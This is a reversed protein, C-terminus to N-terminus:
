EPALYGYNDRKRRKVKGVHPKHDRLSRRYEGREMDMKEQVAEACQKDLEAMFRKEDKRSRRRPLMDYAMDCFASKADESDIKSPMPDLVASALRGAAGGSNPTLLSENGRLAQVASGFGPSLDSPHRRLVDDLTEGLEGDEKPSKQQKRTPPRPTAM